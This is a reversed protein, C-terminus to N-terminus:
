LCTWSGEIRNPLDLLLYYGDKEAMGIVPAITLNIKIVVLNSFRGYVKHNTTALLKVSSCQVVSSSNGWNDILSNQIPFINVLALIDNICSFFTVVLTFGNSTFKIFSNDPCNLEWYSKATHIVSGIKGRNHHLVSNYNAYNSVAEAENPKLNGKVPKGMFSKKVVTM